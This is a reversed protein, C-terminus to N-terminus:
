GIDATMQEALTFSFTTGEGPESEVWIEGDHNEVIKQCLSLGIGTGPYEDDHHLRKFVEFIRDTKDPDIGIGNDTVSFEWSENRQKATIEVRPADDSYKLANSILNQFLKKLQKEHAELTPLSETVINADNEEIQVDLDALVNAVVTECDVPEFEIEDQDIQSYALLDNVMERMRSAGDVAFDIYERAAEDLDDKYRNELLQLYSTVMRLPEQLDHSAAYAFQRLRDNSQELRGITERLEDELRKRETIDRTVCRTNIFNGDKWHVSSDILVHRISGDKCLMRAEYDNLVEDSSLRELIDEIVEQDAHFNAIHHGVYENRSYGLADLEAQNARLIIGDSGVWHMPVAANEFFDAYIEPDSPFYDDRQEHAIGEKRMRQDDTMTFRESAFGTYLDIFVNRNFLRGVSDPKILTPKGEDYGVVGRPSCRLNLITLHIGCAPIRLCIIFEPISNIELNGSNVSKAGESKVM